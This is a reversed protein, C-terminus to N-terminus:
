HLVSLSRRLTIDLSLKLNNKTHKSKMSLTEAYNKKSVKNALVSKPLQMGNIIATLIKLELFRIILAISM